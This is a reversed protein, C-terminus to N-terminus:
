RWECLLVLMSTLFWFTGCLLAAAGIPILWELQRCLWKAALLSLGMTIEVMTMLRESIKM